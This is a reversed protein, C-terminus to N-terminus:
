ISAEKLWAKPLGKRWDCWEIGHKDCWDGYTVKSTKTIRVSPNMFIMRITKTPNCQKVLLMKKRDAATFRGKSEYIFSPDDGILWDVLYSRKTEPVIYTLKCVEYKFSIKNKELYKAIDYEFKSRFGAKKAQQRYKRINM